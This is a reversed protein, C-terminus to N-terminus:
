RLDNIRTKIKRFPETIERASLVGCLQLQQVQFCTIMSISNKALFKCSIVFIIKFTQLKNSTSSNCNKVSFSQPKSGLNSAPDLYAM